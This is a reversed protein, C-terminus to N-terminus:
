EPVSTHYTAASGQEALVVALRPSSQLEVPDGTAGVEGVVEAATAGAFSKHAIHYSTGDSIWTVTEGAVALTSGPPNGGGTIAVTVPDAGDANQVTVTKGAGLTEATPITLTVPGSSTDVRYFGGAVDGSVETSETVAHFGTFAGNYYGGQRGDLLDANLGEVLQGQANGGLIFPPQGEPTDFTHVAEITRPNELHVYQGHDDADLGTLQGHVTIMDTAEQPTNFDFQVAPGGAQFFAIGSISNPVGGTINQM